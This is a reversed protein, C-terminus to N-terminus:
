ETALLDTVYWAGDIAAITVAFALAEEGTKRLRYTLSGNEETQVVGREIADQVRRYHGVSIEPRQATLTTFTDAALHVVRTPMAAQGPASPLVGVPWAGVPAQAWAALPEGALDRVAAPQLDAHLRALRDALHAVLSDRRGGPPYSFAPDVGAPVRVTEGTRTNTYERWVEDPAVGVSRGMRALQKPGLPIVRCKCGWARVPMHRQWWPDDVPLILGDWAKHEAREWPSTTHDYLLYPLTSRAAQIRQWQGEAHATRLNTDYIIKLRRPTGLEAEIQEGTLPDQVSRFGWWGKAQLKPGLEALFTAFTTGQAIGADVAARIDQLLDLQMAKAVTFAAQHEQRWVDQHNFGIRWGKQRFYDVAEQPPLLRLTLPIM